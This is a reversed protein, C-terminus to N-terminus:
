LELGRGRGQAEAHRLVHLATALDEVALGLSEFLTIEDDSTRGAVRGLVVEGLEGVLHDDDVAGEDRALLFDGSEALASERADVIMRSRAVADADLERARPTCAGVANVHIGPALWAGRLVPEPSSTVTCVVDVGDVAERVSLFAEVPLHHIESQEAAFRRANEASRSWVRVREIPRVARMAELHSVAQVGSGLIALVSADDRAMHRTAVASAAATRIATLSAADLIARPTGHDAEFLLVLGQHSPPADPGHSGLFVTVVKVGLVGPQEDADATEGLLMGPMLGLLGARDPRWIAQRLPQVADGRAFVALASEVVDVAEEMPLLAEVDGSSLFVVPIAM